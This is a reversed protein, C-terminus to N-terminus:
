IQGSCSISAWKLDERQYHLRLLKMHILKDENKLIPKLRFCQNIYVASFLILCLVRRQRAFVDCGRKPEDKM